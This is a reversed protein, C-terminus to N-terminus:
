LSQFLGSNLSSNAGGGFDSSIANLLTSIPKSNTPSLVNVSQNSNRVTLKFNFSYQGFNFPFSIQDILKNNNNIWINYPHNSLSSTISSLNSLTTSNIGFIKLNASKLNNIFSQLKLNNFSIQYHSSNMGTILQDPYVKDLILFQNNEYISIIKNFDAQSLATTSPNINASKELGSILSGSAEYWQNNVLKILSLVKPDSTAIGSSSLLQSIQDLGTLQLYMNYGDPSLATLSMANGLGTNDSIKTSFQGNQNIQGAFTLNILQETNPSKISGTFNFNKFNTGSLINLFAVKTINIPQNPLYYSVYAVSAGVTLIIIIVIPLIVKKWSFSLKPKVPVTSYAVTENLSTPIILSNSTQTNIGDSSLTTFGTSENMASESSSSSNITPQSKLESSSTMVSQELNLPQSALNNNSLDTSQDTNNTDNKLNLFPNSTDSSNTQNVPNNSIDSGPLVSDDSFNNPSVNNDDDSLELDNTPM